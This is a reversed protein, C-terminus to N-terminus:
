AAIAWIAALMGWRWPGSLTVLGVPTYTGAILFYIAIHDLRRLSRLTRDSLPLGHYLTSVGYLLLLTSGYISFALLQPGTRALHLLAVTGAVALVLGVLHSAANFPERLQM